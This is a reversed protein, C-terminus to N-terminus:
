LLLFYEFLSYVLLFCLVFHSYAADLECFSM